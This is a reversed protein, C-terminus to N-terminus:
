TTGKERSMNKGGCSQSASCRRIGLLSNRTISLRNACKAINQRVVESRSCSSAHMPSRSFSFTSQRPRLGSLPLRPCLYHRVTASRVASYGHHDGLATCNWLVDLHTDFRDDIPTGTDVWTRTTRDLRFIHWTPTPSTNALM